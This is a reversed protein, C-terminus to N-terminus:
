AKAETIKVPVIRWGLRYLKKWDFNDGCEHHRSVVRSRATERDRAIFQCLLAGDPTKPVLWLGKNYDHTM